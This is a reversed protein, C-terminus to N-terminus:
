MSANSFKNITSFKFIMAFVSIYSPVTELCFRTHEYYNYRLGLSHMLLIVCVTQGICWSSPSVRELWFGYISYDIASFDAREGGFSPILGVLSGNAIDFSM